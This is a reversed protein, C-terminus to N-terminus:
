RSQWQKLEGQAKTLKNTRRRYARIEKKSYLLELRKLAYGRWYDTFQKFRRSAWLATLAKHISLQLELREKKAQKEALELRDLLDRAMDLPSQLCDQCIGHGCLDIGQQWDGCIECKVLGAIEAEYKVTIVQPEQGEPLGKREAEIIHPHNM